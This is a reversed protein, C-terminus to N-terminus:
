ATCPMFSFKRSRDSVSVASGPFPILRFFRSVGGTGALHVGSRIIGSIRDYTHVFLRNFKMRIRLFGYMKRLGVVRLFNIMFIDAFSCAAAKHEGLRESSPSAHSDLTLPALLVPRLLYLFKDINVVRIRLFDDKNAIVQIGVVYRRQIFSKLWSFCAPYPFSEFQMMRGLMDGPQIYGFDLEGSEGLPTQVSSDGCDLFKLPFGSSPIYVPVLPLLSDAPLEGNSIGSGSELVQIRRYFDM